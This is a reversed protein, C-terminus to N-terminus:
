VYNGFMKKEQSLNLTLGLDHVEEQGWRWRCERNECYDFDHGLVTM